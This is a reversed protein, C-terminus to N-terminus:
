AAPAGTQRLPAANAFAPLADCRAVIRDVLPTGDVTIKFVRMVALISALTIDALTVSDGHCFEGTAADNALRQEVARLGAGFWQVQWARWAADDFGGQTTLYKRIRPTVLPHTDAALMQAISRVRARGHPDAPLLPPGPCTEDLFELIALSQTLPPHGAVRLAPIAGLPNIELFAPRHQEGAELNVQHETATIGKLNLAVRVRFTASTRWFAYLELPGTTRTM